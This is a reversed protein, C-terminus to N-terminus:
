KSQNAILELVPKWKRQEAQVFEITAAPSMARTYSGRTAIAQKFDPDSVVKRLDESIKAIITESTGVPAVLVQWGTASFGPMTQAVTPLGPFEALPEHSAVAVVKVSGSEVAGAIAPYGEIFLGVRGSVVDSIAHAPGGTYPITLLKIDTWSQLLEATLHSLRGVGTVACSIAGPRAKAQAILDSIKSIGLSPNAVVFLPNEGAFGIAAFDQPLRIPVNPPTGPLAVFSSIVPMYLTYGDPASEAAIRSAISGTAGPHNVTVIPQGWIQSLRDAILRLMADPTSGAASDSIITVTKDPYRQDQAHGPVSILIAAAIIFITGRMAAGCLARLTMGEERASRIFPFLLLTTALGEVDREL